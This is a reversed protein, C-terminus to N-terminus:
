LRDYIYNDCNFHLEIDPRGTISERIGFDVQDNSEGDYIWGAVQGIKTRPLGLTDYVENLFLHGVYKLRDNCYEEQISLFAINSARDKTWPLCSSDFLSEFKEDDQVNIIYEM